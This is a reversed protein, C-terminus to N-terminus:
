NPYIRNKKQLQGCSARRRGPIRCDCNAPCDIDLNEVKFELAQKCFFTYKHNDHSINANLGRAREDLARGGWLLILLWDRWPLEVCARLFRGLFSPMPCLLPLFGGCPRSQGFPDQFTMTARLGISGDERIRGRRWRIVRTPKWLERSMLAAPPM